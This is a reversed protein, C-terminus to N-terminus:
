SHGLTNIVHGPFNSSYLSDCCYGNRANYQYLIFTIFIQIKTKEIKLRKVEICNIKVLSIRVICVRVVTVM